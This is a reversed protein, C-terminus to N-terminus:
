GLQAGSIIVHSAGASQFQIQLVDGAALVLHRQNNGVVNASAATGSDAVIVSAGKVVLLLMTRSSGAANYFSWDKILWTKGAPVTGISGPASANLYTGLQRSRVPWTM